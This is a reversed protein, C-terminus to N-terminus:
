INKNFQFKCPFELASGTVKTGNVKLIADRVESSGTSSIGIAGTGATM